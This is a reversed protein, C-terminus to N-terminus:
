KLLLLKESVTQGPVSLNVIYLGSSLKSGDFPFTYTGSQYRGRNHYVIEGKLNIVTLTLSATSKLTFPIVTVPNFPNPYCHGLILDQPLATTEPRISSATGKSELVIMSWYDLEPLTFQLSDGHQAFDLKVPLGCNQDPSAYWVNTITSDTKIILPLNKIQTPAIQSESQDRWDMTTVGYFNIFHYIERSVAGDPGPASSLSRCAFAWIRNQTASKSIAVSGQSVISYIIGQISDRLLNEYAVLFDYYDKLRSALTDSTTLNASPFYESTLYHEGLELHAGANAFIVADALLVAPLNVESSTGSYNRNVYAALVTPLTDNSFSENARIISALGGYTTESWVETYLFDVPATAIQTQGYQDVANMVLSKGLTTKSKEIFSQFSNKAVVAEGSYNYLIGRDGLQDMHWGDFDFVEFTKRMENNIYNQWSSNSPDMLYIDSAWSSPLDHKDPNQHASDTFLRWEPQVGENVADEYAGYILNYAMARMNRAHALEIYGEVTARYIQRNAIDNWSSAPEATTGCLPRHHKWHWDYFQLGNIHYATLRDIVTERQEESMSGYESLFGYRPFKRWDSSVDIGLTIRDAISDSAILRIEALYGQFDSAPPQWQFELNLATVLVIASDVKVNLHWYCIQLHSDNPMASLQVSIRVSDGPNYRALDTTASEFYDMGHLEAVAFLLFWAWWHNKVIRV